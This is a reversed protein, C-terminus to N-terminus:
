LMEATMMATRASNSLVAEVDETIDGLVLPPEVTRMSQKASNYTELERCPSVVM